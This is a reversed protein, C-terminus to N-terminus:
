RYKGKRSLILAGLVIMAAGAVLEHAILIAYCALYALAVGLLARVMPNSSPFKRAARM